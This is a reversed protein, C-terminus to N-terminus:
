LSRASLQRLVDAGNGGGALTFVIALVVGVVGIGGGGIAVGRRSGRRDEIQGTNVRGGLRM